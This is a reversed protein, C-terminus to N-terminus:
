MGMSVVIFRKYVPIVQAFFAIRSMPLLFFSYWIILFTLAVLRYVVNVSWRLCLTDLTKKVVHGYHGKNRYNPYLTVIIKRKIQWIVTICNKVIPPLFIPFSLFALVHCSAPHFWCKETSYHQADLDWPHRKCFFSFSFFLVSNEFSNYWIFWFM